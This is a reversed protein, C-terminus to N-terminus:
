WSLCTCWTRMCSRAVILRGGSRLDLTDLVVCRAREMKSLAKSVAPGGVAVEEDAIIRRRSTTAMVACTM